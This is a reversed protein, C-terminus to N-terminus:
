SRAAGAMAKAIDTPDGSAAATEFTIRPTMLEIGNEAFAKQLAAMAKRRVMFQQGPKTSFKVGIEFSHGSIAIAGQSKMPELIRDAIEPDTALVEGAKKVLKRVKELDTEQPVLFTFKVKVWDRSHNQITGMSSFPVTFVPGRPHRLRVSRLSISEVVGKSGSAEIYEGIRFADEYLYFVGNIVDAVLKQAGFGIALGLVGAGALLPAINVGLASLAFIGTFTVIAALAAGRLIPAVTNLRSGTSGGEEEPPASPDHPTKEPAWVGILDSIANWLAFGLLLAFTAKVVGAVIGGGGSAFPDLGWSQLILIAAGLALAGKGLAVGGRLLTHPKDPERALIEDRWAGVGAIAFPTLAAIVLSNNISGSVDAGGRLGLATSAAALANVAALGVYGVHWWQALFASIAGPKGAFAKDILAAVPRRVALFFTATMAGSLLALTAAALSGQWVAGSLDIMGRLFLFVSGIVFLILAWRMVHRAQAEDFGPLRRHPAGPAALAQVIAFVIRQRMAVALMLAGIPAAHYPLLANTAATAVFWFIALSIARGVGWRATLLLRRSFPGPTESAPAFAAGLRRLAYEVAYAGALAAAALLIATLPDMGAADMRDAYAALADPFQDARDVAVGFAEGFAEPDPVMEEAPTESAVVVAIGADPLAELVQARVAPDLDAPLTITIAGDSM